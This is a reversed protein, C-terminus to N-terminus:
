ADPAGSLQQQVAALLDDARVPKSLLTARAISSDALAAKATDGTMFVVPVDTRARERV